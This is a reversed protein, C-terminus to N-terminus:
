LRSTTRDRYPDTYMLMAFMLGLGFLAPYLVSDTLDLYWMNWWQTEPAMDFFIMSALFLALYVAGQAATFWRLWAPRSVAALGLAGTAVLLMSQAVNIRIGLVVEPVPDGPQFGAAVLGAAGLAVLALGEAKVVWGVYLTIPSRRPWVATRAPRM